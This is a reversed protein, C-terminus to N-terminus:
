VDFGFTNDLGDKLQTPGTVFIQDMEQMNHRISEVKWELPPKENKFVKGCQWKWLKWCVIVMSEPWRGGYCTKKSLLSEVAVM